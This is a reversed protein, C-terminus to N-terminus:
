INLYNMLSDYREQLGQYYTDESFSAKITYNFRSFTQLVPGIDLKNLKLTVELRTSDPFSTIFMSLIRADNSEVIQAIETLQYDRENIELMVIGGPNDIAYIRAMQHVIRALTIVGIYQNKENLVPLVTLNHEAFLRLIDYFHQDEVVYLHGLILPHNGVPQAPDNLNIIDTDSILGLYNGNNVVPLQSVRLEDMINLALSGPDSTKLPILIETLLDRATV